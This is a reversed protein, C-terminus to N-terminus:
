DTKTYSWVPIPDYKTSICIYISFLANLPHIFTLSFQVFSCDPITSASVSVISSMPSHGFIVGWFICCRCCVFM